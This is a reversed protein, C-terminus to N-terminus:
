DEAPFKDILNVIRRMILIADSIDIAGDKNVDAFMKQADNMEELGVVNRMVYIADGVDISDDGNADGYKLGVSISGEDVWAPIGNNNTDILFKGDISNLLINTHKGPEGTIQFTINFLLADEVTLGTTSAIAVTIYGEAAHEYNVIPLFDQLCEVGNQVVQAVTPDYRLEFQMGAVGNIKKGNIPITVTTGQSGVASGVQIVTESKPEEIWWGHWGSSWDGIQIEVDYQGPEIITTADLNITYGTGEANPQLNEYTDFVEGFKYITAKAPETLNWGKATIVYQKSVSDIDWVVGYITKWDVAQIEINSGGQIPTIISEDEYGITLLLDTRETPLAKSFTAEIYDDDHENVHIDSLNVTVRENFGNTTIAEKLEMVITKSTDLQDLNEGRAQITFGSYGAGLEHPYLWGFLMPGDVFEVEKARWSLTDSWSSNGNVKFTYSGAPLGSPNVAKMELFMKAGNDYF